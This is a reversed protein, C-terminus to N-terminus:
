TELYKEIRDRIPQILVGERISGFTTARAAHHLAVVKWEDNFCPSGSSGGVAKTAYQILGRDSYVGTVGDASTSLKMTDKGPHHLLNLASKLPPVDDALPAPSLADDAVIKDEVQLLVFDLEKVPSQELIGDPAVRYVRGESPDGGSMTFCEFRLIAQKANLQIDPMGDPRLVHYNTLVKGPAVLFGTGGTKGVEVRCVSASRAMARRLFGVDQWPPDPHLFSQLELEGPGKWEFDPGYDPVAAAASPPSPVGYRIRIEDLLKNDLILKDGVIAAAVTRADDPSIEQDLLARLIAGLATYRPDEPNVKKAIGFDVLRLADVSANGSWRGSMDVKWKQPLAASDLIYRFFMQPNVFSPDGSLQFITTVLAKKDEPKL